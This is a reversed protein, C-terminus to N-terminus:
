EPPISQPNRFLDGPDYTTKVEVLREWNEAYYQQQWDVIDRNPFNQYSENMTAPEIAQIVAATWANLADVV